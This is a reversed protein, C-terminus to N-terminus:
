VDKSILLLGFIFFGLFLSSSVIPSLFHSLISRCLFKFRQDVFGPFDRHSAVTAVLFLAVRLLFGFSWRFLLHSVPTLALRLDGFGSFSFRFLDSSFLGALVLSCERKLLNQPSLLSLEVFFEYIWIPPDEDPSKFYM